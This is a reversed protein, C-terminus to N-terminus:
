FQYGLAVAIGSYTEIRDATGGSPDNFADEETVETDTFRAVLSWSKPPVLGVTTVTTRIDMGGPGTDGHEIREHRQHYGAMLVALGVEGTFANATIKREEVGHIELPTREELSGELHFRFNESRWQVAAGLRRLDSTSNVSESFDFDPDFDDHTFTEEYRERGLTVGLYVTDFFKISVGALEFTSTRVIEDSITDPYFTANDQFRQTEQRTEMGVGLAIADAIGLAAAASTVDLDSEEEEAPLGPEPAEMFSRLDIRRDRSEGGISVPGWLLRLKALSTGLDAEGVEGVADNEVDGDARGSGGGVLSTGTWQQVAPNATTDGPFLPDLRPAAVQAWAPWAGICFLVLLGMAVRM